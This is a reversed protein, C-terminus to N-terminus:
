LLSSAQGLIIDAVHEPKELPILHGCHELEIVKADNFYKAFETTLFNTSLGKDESGSVVTIPVGVNKMDGSIDEKSGIYLWGQWANNAVVMNDAITQLLRSQPIVTALLSKIHATIRKEHQWAKDLKLRNHMTMPEPSPPSPAILVLGKLGAPQQSAISLVIKGGMSHGILLFNRLNLKDLVETVATSNDAVFSPREPAPSKGFGLMDIAICRYHDKLLEVVPQWTTTAGGFYHIFVLATSGMGVDTYHLM